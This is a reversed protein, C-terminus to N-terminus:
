HNGNYFVSLGWKLLSLFLIFSDFFITNQFVSIKPIKISDFFLASPVFSFAPFPPIIFFITLIRSVVAKAAPISASDRICM